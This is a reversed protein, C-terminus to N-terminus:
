GCLNIFIKFEACCNKNKGLDETKKITNYKKTLKIKRLEILVFAFLNNM